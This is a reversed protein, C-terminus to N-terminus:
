HKKKKGGPIMSRAQKVRQRQLDQVKPFVQQRLAIQTYAMNIFYIGGDSRNQRFFQRDGHLHAHQGHAERQDDAQRHPKDHRAEFVAPRILEAFFLGDEMEAM